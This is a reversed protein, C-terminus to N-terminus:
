ITLKQHTESLEIIIQPYTEQVPRFQSDLAVVRFLVEQEPKYIPKDTQIFVTNDVNQIAVSRRESLNVTTGKASFSIFALPDSIASPVKFNYCKFFESKMASEEFLTEQISGYELVISLSLPESLGHLQVCATQPSDSRVVTPVLLVYQPESSVTAIWNLSLISLLIRSWM